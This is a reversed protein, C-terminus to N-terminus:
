KTLCTTENHMTAFQSANLENIQKAISQVGYYGNFDISSKDKAGQKTTIIVVGNAGRSGYIATASADKLIQYTEIDSASLQDLGSMTPVGDIVILPNNNNITGTGRIRFTVDSGPTGSNIVQVGAAKGQLAGGVSAVPLTAVDKSSISVVSGTLDKKRVSGYGVAVVENLTVIDEILTTNIVSQNGVAIEQTQMGIFSIQLTANSPVDALSYEGDINTVVGNTTGKINVTVGPLGAGTSDLVKGNVPHKSVPAGAPKEKPNIIILNNETISYSIGQQTLVQKLVEEVSKNVVDVNVRKSLDVKEDEYIFNFDTQKGIEQLLEKVSANHMKLTVMKQQSYVTNFAQVCFLLVLATTLRMGMLGKAPFKLWPIGLVNNKKM